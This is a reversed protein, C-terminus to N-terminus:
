KELFKSKLLFEFFIVKKEFKELMFLNVDPINFLRRIVLFMRAHMASVYKFSNICITFSGGVYLYVSLCGLNIFVNYFNVDDSSFAFVRLKVSAWVHVLSFFYKEYM